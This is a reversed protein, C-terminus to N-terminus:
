NETDWRLPDHVNHGQASVRNVVNGASRSDAVLARNFEDPTKSSHLLGEISGGLHFLFGIALREFVIPVDHEESLAHCGNIAVDRDIEIQVCHTGPRRFNLAQA